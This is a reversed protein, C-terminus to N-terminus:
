PRHLFLVHPYRTFTRGSKLALRKFDARTAFQMMGSFIWSAFRSTPRQCAQLIAGFLTHRPAQRRTPLFVSHIQFYLINPTTYALDTSRGHNYTMSLRDLDAGEYQMMWSQHLAKYMPPVLSGSDIANVTVPARLLVGSLQVQSALKENQPMQFWSRANQSIIAALHGGSSTGSLVLKVPEIAQAVFQQVNSAIYQFADIGDSMPIPYKYAPSLRYEVSVVTVPANLAM